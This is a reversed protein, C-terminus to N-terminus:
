ASPAHLRPYLSQRVSLSADWQVCQERLLGEADASTWPTLDQESIADLGIVGLWGNRGSRKVAYLMNDAIGVVDKWHLLDPHGSVLPFCAFGVSCTVPIVKGDGQEFPTASVARCIRDALEAAHRGSTNRAVCLFEEGGWRVVHDADRFVSRLRSAFQQLVSDGADHGHTDNIAKFNDIDVLFFQLDHSDDEPTGSAKSDRHARLTMAIDADICELLYRRNHLGTLADRVSTEALADRQLQLELTMTELEATRDRVIAELEGQRRRLKKTRWQALGAAAFMAAVALLAKLWNTQWWYPEVRVILKREQPNWFGSHNTAKISLTYTGPSLHSYSAVRQNASTYTWDKDLGELRFAYRLRDPTLYDLATYEVSFSQRDKGIRLTDQALSMPQRQGNVRLEVIHVPAYPTTVDFLEPWVRLLGKSTGFLMRGDSTKSYAHFWGTGINPRHASTLEILRDAVPDYVNMQTWIRGRGDAMLNAGFPKGLQGHRESVRDFALLPAAPDNKLRHLGSVGTDVWLTGHSDFLLGIVIESGLSEGPKQSAQELQDGQENTRFLGQATGVWVRGDPGQAITHIEGTPQQKRDVVREPRANSGRWRYLGDQTGIWLRGHASEFLRRTQGGEHMLARRLKGQADFQDIRGKGGVWLLGSRTRTLAEVAGTMKLIPSTPQLARDLRTVVGSATGVWVHGDPAAAMSRIDAHSFPGHGPVVPERLAISQNLAQHRQLGLGFGSVWVWGSRDLLLQTVHNAALGTSRSPNHRLVHVVTGTQADLLQIGSTRAVWVHRGPVELLWTIAGDGLPLTALKVQTVQQSERNVQFIAGSETGVWILGHADEMLATVSQRALLGEGILEFQAADRKKRALGAWTGVWVSEDRDVLLAQVRDDPLAGSSASHRFATFLKTQPDFIELGGGISGVYIRGRADEALARITPLNTARLTQEDKPLPNSSAGYDTVADRAPDYASLGRNETGIWVQGDRGALLARVWGLNRLAPDETNRLIARYNYGDHRVLGDGTAIWLFGARDLTFAPVVDRPINGIGFSEFRPPITHEDTSAPALAVPIALSSANLTM